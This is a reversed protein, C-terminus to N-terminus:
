PTTCAGFVIFGAQGDSASITTKGTKENIVMGWVRGNQVGQLLLNGDLREMNIIKTTRIPGSEPTSSILKEKFNIKLFSPIGINEAEGRQCANGLECEITEIVACILPKSGDFDGALVLGPALLLCFICVNLFRFIKM